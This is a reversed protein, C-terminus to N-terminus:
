IGSARLDDDLTDTMQTLTAGAKGYARAAKLYERAYRRSEAPTRETDAYSDSRAEDAYFDSLERCDAEAADALHRGLHGLMTLLDGSHRAEAGSDNHAEQAAAELIEARQPHNLLEVLLSALRAANTDTTNSM